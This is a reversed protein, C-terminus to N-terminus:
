IFRQIKKFQFKTYFYRLKFLLHKFLLIKKNEDVFRKRFLFSLILNRIKNNESELYSKKVLNSLRKEFFNFTKETKDEFIVDYIPIFEYRADHIDRIWYLSNLSKTKGQLVLSSSVYMESLSQSIDWNIKSKSRPVSVKDTGSLAIKLCSKRCVGVFVSTYFNYHDRLRKIPNDSEISKSTPFNIFYNKFNNKNKLRKYMMTIGWVTSYDKNRELFNIAKELFPVYVLDDDPSWICYNYKSKKILFNSTAYNNLEPTHFVKIDISFRKIKEKLNLFSKYNSSDGIILEGQFKAKYYAITKTLIDTRNLSPILISIM